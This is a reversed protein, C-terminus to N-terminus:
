KLLISDIKDNRLESIDKIIIKYSKYNCKYYPYNVAHTKESHNITYQMNQISYVLSQIPASIVCLTLTKSESDDNGILSSSYVHCKLFDIWKIQYFYQPFPRNISKSIINIYKCAFNSLFISHPNLNLDSIITFLKDSNLTSNFDFPIIIEKSNNLMDRVSRHYIEDVLSIIFTSSVHPYTMERSFVSESSSIVDGSYLYHFNSVNADLTEKYEDFTERM